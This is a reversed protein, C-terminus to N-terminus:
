RTHISEQTAMYFYSWLPNSSSPIGVQLLSHITKTLAYLIIKSSSVMANGDVTQINGLRSLIRFIPDTRMIFFRDDTTGKVTPVSDIPRLIKRYSPRTSISIISRILTLESHNLNLEERKSACWHGLAEVWAEQETSGRAARVSSPYVWLPSTGVSAYLRIIPDKIVSLRSVQSASLEPKQHHWRAEFEAQNRVLQQSMPLYGESGRLLRDLGLYFRTRWERWDKGSFSYSGPLIRAYIRATILRSEPNWLRGAGFNHQLIEFVAQISSAHANFWPKAHLLQDVQALAPKGDTADEPHRNRRLMKGLLQSLVADHIEMAVNRDFSDNEEKL